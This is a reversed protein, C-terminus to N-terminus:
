NAGRMGKIGPFGGEKKVAKTELTVCGCRISRAVAAGGKRGKPKSKEKRTQGVPTNRKRKQLFSKKKHGFDNGVRDGNKGVRSERSHDRKTKTNVSWDVVGGGLNWIRSPRRPHEGGEWKGVWRRRQRNKKERRRKSRERQLQFKTTKERKGKWVPKENTNM